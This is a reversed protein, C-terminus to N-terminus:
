DPAFIMNEINRMVSSQCIIIVDPVLMTVVKTVAGFNYDGTRNTTVVV